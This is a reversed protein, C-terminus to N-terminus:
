TDIGDWIVYKLAVWLACGLRKRDSFTLSILFATTFCKLLSQSSAKGSFHTPWHRPTSVSHCLQQSEGEGISTHQTSQAGVSVGILTGAAAHQARAPVIDHRPMPMAMEEWLKLVLRMVAHLLM